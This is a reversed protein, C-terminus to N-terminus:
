TISSTGFGLLESCLKNNMNTFIKINVKIGICISIEINFSGAAVRVHSERESDVSSNKM